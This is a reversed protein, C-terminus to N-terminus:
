DFLEDMLDLIDIEVQLQNRRKSTWRFSDSQFTGLRPPDPDERLQHFYAYSLLTNSATIPDAQELSAYVRAQVKAQTEKWVDPEGLRDLALAALYGWPAWGAESVGGTAQILLERGAGDGHVALYAASVIPMDLENRELGPIPEGISAPDFMEVQAGIEREFEFAGREAFTVLHRDLFSAPYDLWLDSALALSEPSPDIQLFDIVNVRFESAVTASRKALRAWLPRSRELIESLEDMEALRLDLGKSEYVRREALCLMDFLEDFREIDDEALLVPGAVTRPGSEPVVTLLSGEHEFEAAGASVNLSISRKGAFGPGLLAVAQERFALEAYATPWTDLEVRAELDSGPLARIGAFPAALLFAEAGATLEISGLELEVLAQGDRERAILITEAGARLSAAGVRIDVPGSDVLIVDGPRINTDTRPTLNAGSLLEVKASAVAFPPEPAPRGWKWVSLFLAVVAASAALSRVLRLRGGRPVTERTASGNPAPATSRPPTPLADQGLDTEDVELSGRVGRSWAQLINATLDPGGEEDLVRGLAYDLVRDRPDDSRELEDHESM